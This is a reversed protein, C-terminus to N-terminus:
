IHKSYIMKDDGPAYFNKLRCDLAYGIKEYFKQTSVYQAKGSTEVVILRGNRMKILKTGFDMLSKGIGARQKDPDVAIWYIDFTGITCPTPGFCIWGAIKKDIVAVFSQYHGKPGHQLAEDLVEQAVQLEGQHFFKTQSLISLIQPRDKKRSYRISLNNTLKSIGAISKKRSPAKKLRASANCLMTRVFKEFPIDAANLAANFGGEPSIDPNPNVELIFPNNKEDLRFDVRIFDACDLTKWANISLTRIIKALEPNLKTPIIRPTNNYAFTEPRWKANYDVIRPLDSGFASFDIEAIPLVDIKSRRQILSVNLERGTIFQEIIAPQKMLQHIRRVANSLKLSTDNIVSDAHIGESADSFVPKVIYPGPFINGLNVNQGIPVLVGQPGPLHAAKLVSKTRWKDQTLLLCSSDSGTCVKDFSRCIAPVLCYDLPNGSLGEVLNFVIREPSANLVAPLDALTSISEIRHNIGLNELAAAVARVEDLVGQNSETFANGSIVHHLILVTDTM